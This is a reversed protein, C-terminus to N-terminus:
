RNKLINVAGLTAVLVVGGLLLAGWGGGSSKEESPEEKKEEAKVPEAKVKTEEKAKEEKAKAEEKVQNAKAEAEADAKAKQELKNKYIKLQEVADDFYEKSYNEVDKLNKESEDTPSEEHEKKAIEVKDVLSQATNVRQQLIRPFTENQLGLDKITDQINM